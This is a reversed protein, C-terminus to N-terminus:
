LAEKFNLFVQILYQYRKLSIFIFFLNMKETSRMSIKSWFKADLIAHQFILVYSLYEKVKLLCQLEPGLLSSMEVVM